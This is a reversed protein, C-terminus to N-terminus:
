RGNFFYTKNIELLSMPFNMRKPLGTCALANIDTRTGQVGSDRITKFDYGLDGNVEVRKGTMM